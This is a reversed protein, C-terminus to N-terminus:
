KYCYGGDVVIEAGNVYGCRVIGMCVDAIEEPKAFRGLAVKGEISKRIEAPKNKQWPTDVFGPVITNVTIKREAFEKVLYKALMHVGAKTVGYSISMSHPYVGMLSGIFIIRGSDQIHESLHQILFLPATVNTNLFKNWEEETIENLSSRSTTGNNLVLVSVSSFRKLVEDSFNSVGSVNSLDAKIIEYMGAYSEQLEADLQEADVDSKAYNFIVKYGENLLAIGIAKGIGKTSGTVVATKEFSQTQTKITM